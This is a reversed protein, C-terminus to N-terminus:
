IYEIVIVCNYLSVVAGSDLVLGESGFDYVPLADGSTAEGGEVAVNTSSPAPSNQSNTNYIAFTGNNGSAYGTIRYITVGQTFAVSTSTVGKFKRTITRAEDARLNSFLLSIGVLVMLAFIFIKKM